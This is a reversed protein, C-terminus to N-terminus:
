EAGSLCSVKGDLTVLFLKGNAAAMGDFVPPAALTYEAQKKGDAASVAWLM